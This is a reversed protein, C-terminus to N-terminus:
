GLLHMIYGSILGGLLAGPLDNLTLNGGALGLALWLMVGCVLGGGLMAGLVKKSSWEEM